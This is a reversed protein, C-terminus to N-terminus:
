KNSTDSLMIQETAHYNVRYYRTILFQLQLDPTWHNRICTVVSLIICSSTGVFRVGETM